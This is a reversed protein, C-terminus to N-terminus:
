LKLTSTDPVRCTSAAREQMIDVTNSVPMLIEFLSFTENTPFKESKNSFRTWIHLFLALLHVYLTVSLRTRAVITATSFWYNNCIKLAQKYGETDLMFHRMHWITIQPRDPEVINKWMIEYVARNLFFTVSCLMHTKIQEVVKTQFM